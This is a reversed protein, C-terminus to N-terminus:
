AVAYGDCEAWAVGNERVMRVPGTLIITPASEIFTDITSVVKWGEGLRNMAIRM